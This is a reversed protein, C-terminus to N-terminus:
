YDNETPLFPNLFMQNLSNLKRFLDTINFFNWFRIMLCHGHLVSQLAPSVIEPHHWTRITIFWKEPFAVLSAVEEARVCHILKLRNTNYYWPNNIEWDTSERQEWGGGGDGGEVGGGEEVMVTKPHNDAVYPCQKNIPWEHVVRTRLCMEAVHRVWRLVFVDGVVPLSRFENGPVPFSKCRHKAIQRWWPAFFHYIWESDICEPKATAPVPWNLIHSEKNAM